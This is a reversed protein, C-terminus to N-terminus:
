YPSFGIRGLIAELFDWEVRDYVKSMDLKVIFGKNSGNKASQLYYMLEHTILVNDHIM